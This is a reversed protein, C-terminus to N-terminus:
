PGCGLNVTNANNRNNSGMFSPFKNKWVWADFGSTDGQYEVWEPRYRCIYRVCQCLHTPGRDYPEDVVLGNVRKKKYRVMESHLIPCLPQSPDDPNTAVVFRPPAGDRKMLFEHVTLVGAARDDDGYVFGNGTSQSKVGKGKLARSYQEEISYGSGAETPRAGHGDIIFSEYPQGLVKEYMAQGFMAANCQPIYLEDFAIIINLGSPSEEPPPVACFLVACISHGPDIIAYHTWHRMTKRLPYGHISLQWEPYVRISNIMSMGGFRIALDEESLSRRFRDVAEKDQYANEDIKLDFRVVDPKPNDKPNALWMELQRDARDSMELLNAFGNQPTASWIMRGKRDTLRAIMEPVWAGDQSDVIEEDLWCNHNAVSGYMYNHNVEVGFDWILGDGADELSDIFLLEDFDSVNSAAEEGNM